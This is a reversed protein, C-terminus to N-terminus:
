DITSLVGVAAVTALEITVALGVLTAASPEVVEVIVMCALSALLLLRLVPPRTTVM